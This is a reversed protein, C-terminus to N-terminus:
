GATNPVYSDLSVALGDDPGFLLQGGAPDTLTLRVGLKSALLEALAGASASGTEQDALLLQFEQLPSLGVDKAALQDQQLVAQAHQDLSLKIGLGRIDATDIMEDPDILYTTGPIRGGGDELAKGFQDVEQTLQEDLWESLRVPNTEPANGM